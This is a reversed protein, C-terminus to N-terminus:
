PRHELLISMNQALICSREDGTSLQAITAKLDDENDVDTQPALLKYAVKNEELIKVTQSLVDPTSWSIDEFICPLNRRMGILYYGGDCAPGLVVDNDVLSHIANSITKSTITPCDSGIVLTTNSSFLRHIPDTSLSNSFYHRLRQGLDGDCQLQLDWASQGLQEFALQTEVPWYVLERRDCASDLERVLHELMLRHIEAAAVPGVSVSLRTKVTGPKWYKTFLGLTTM